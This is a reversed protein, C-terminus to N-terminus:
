HKPPPYAKAIEALLKEYDPPVLEFATLHWLTMLQKGVLSKDAHLLGDQFQQLKERSLQGPRFALATAPFTESEQLVKLRKSRAPKRRQYSDLANGDVVVADCTRDVLDDLADEANAPRAIQAFFRQTDCHCAQQCGREVFLRPHMRSSRPLALSKGQLDGFGRAPNEVHVLLRAQLHPQHNVIIMLAQLDPFRQRAWAFEVGQFVALKVKGDALEQGLQYPHDTFHVESSIGTQARILAQFPEAFAGQPRHPSDHFFSGVIGIPIREVPEAARVRNGSAQMMAATMLFIRVLIQRSAM